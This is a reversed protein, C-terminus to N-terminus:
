DRPRHAYVNWLLTAELAEEKETVLSTLGHDRLLAEVRALRGNIDHVEVVVQQVRDWDGETLSLLADEEAGECDIKLLDIREVSHAKIVASLTTLEATVEIANHRLWRAIPGALFRPLIRAYWMPATRTNGAVAEEFAGPQHDWDEDRATSLAPANPFYTFTAVGPTQAVGYPLVIAGPWRELNKVACARIEPIPEFAIVQIDGGCRQAMRVGFIGINAGVDFVTNGPEVRIGHNMYGEIHGDLVMAEGPQICHVKTGDELRTTTM